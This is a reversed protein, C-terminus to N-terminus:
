GNQAQARALNNRVIVTTPHEPGLAKEYIALTRELL